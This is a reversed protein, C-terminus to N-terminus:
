IPRQRRRLLVASALDGLGGLSFSVALVLAPVRPRTIAEVIWYSGYLLWWGGLIFGWKPTKTVQWWPRKAPEM